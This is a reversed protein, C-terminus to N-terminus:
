TVDHRDWAKHGSSWWCCVFVTQSRYPSWAWVLHATLDSGLILSVSWDSSLILCARVLHRKDPVILRSNGLFCCIEPLRPIPPRMNVKSALGLGHCLILEKKLTETVRLIILSMKWSVWHPCSTQVSLPARFSDGSTLWLVMRWYLLNM